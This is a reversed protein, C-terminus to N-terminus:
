IIGMNLFQGTSPASVPALVAYTVMKSAQMASQSLVNYALMKSARADAQALTNYTVIKSAEISGSM